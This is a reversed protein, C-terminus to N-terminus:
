LKALCGAPPNDTIVVAVNVFTAWARFLLTSHDRDRVHALRRNILREPGRSHVEDEALKLKGREVLGPRKLRWFRDTCNM